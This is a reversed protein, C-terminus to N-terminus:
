LAKAETGKAVSMAAEPQPQSCPCLDSPNWASETTDPSQAHGGAPTPIPLHGESPTSRTSSSTPTSATTPMRLVM